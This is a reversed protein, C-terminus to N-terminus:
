PQTPKQQVTAHHLTTYHLTHHIVFTSRINILEVARYYIVDSLSFTHHTNQCDLRAEFYVMRLVTKYYKAPRDATLVQLYKSLGTRDTM